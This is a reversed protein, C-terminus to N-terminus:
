GGCGLGRLREAAKEATVSRPKAKGWRDRVVRYAACAGEKDGKAERAAGLWLAARTHEVPLELARCTKAARELWPMAEDTRGALFFTRGVAAEAITKPYFTPLPEYSPLAALAERADDATEVTGAFGHAWLYRRFAPAARREWARVWEARKATLDARPLKGSGRAAVFLLDPTADAAMAYDEARARGAGVRRAPRPLRRGRARRRRRAGGRRLDARAPAGRARQDAERPSAAAAAELARARVEASAFDGTLLDLALMDDAEAPRREAEPLAAWKLKLAERVAAEPRGRAALAKALLGQAIAQATSATVLQRAMAEEEECAGEHEYLRALEAGCTVYTPALALCRRLVDRAEDFRGLYALDQGLLSMAQAYKPDLAIARAVFPESAAPGDSTQAFLGRQYWLQADGPYRDVALGLRRGAEKWDAPQRLLVPELADLLMQDRDDLQARLEDGQRLIPAGATTSPTSPPTPPASSTRSRSRPISPARASSRTTCGASAFSPSAWTTHRSRTRAPRDLSPCSRSPPPAPPRPAPLRRPRRRRRAGRSPRRPSRPAPSRPRPRARGCRRGASSAVWSSRSPRSRSSRARAGPDAGAARRGGRGEAARAADEGGEAARVPAPPRPRTAAHALAATAKAPPASGGVGAAPQTPPAYDASRQTRHEVPPKSPPPRVTSVNRPTMSRPRLSRPDSRSPPEAHAELAAIVDDMTPFRDDPAKELARMVVAAAEEPVAPSLERLPRPESALIRALVGLGAGAWPPEGTLLEYALIGWSFQDSRGDLPDSRIQEPAMYQPTGLLTGVGTLTTPGTETRTPDLTPENNGRPVGAAPEGREGREDREDGEGALAERRPRATRRALGFDLVKVRGDDRIMVNEPKIDRHIIRARHAAALASAVDSLWRLRTPVDPEESGVFNRLSQGNVLEMAMFSAEAEEGVDFIAVANPHDLAAASRAERLFRKTREFSEPDDPDAFLVKLAVKRGLRADRARYVVGMGGEGLAGEITYRGLKSGVEMRDAMRRTPVASSPPGSGESSSSGDSGPARM